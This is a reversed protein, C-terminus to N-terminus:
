CGIFRVMYTLRNLLNVDIGNCFCPLYLSLSTEPVNIAFFTLWKLPGPGFLYLASESWIFSSQKDICDSINRTDNTNRTSNFLKYHYHIKVHKSPTEGTPFFAEQLNRIIGKDNLIYYELDGYYEICSDNENYGKVEDCCRDDVEQASCIYNVALFGLVLQYVAMEEHM